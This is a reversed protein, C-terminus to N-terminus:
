AARWTVVSFWLYKRVCMSSLKLRPRGRNISFTSSSSSGHRSLTRCFFKMFDPVINFTVMLM